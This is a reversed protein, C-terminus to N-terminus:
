ILRGLRRNIADLVAKVTAQTTDGAEVLATGVFSDRSEPMTVHAMAVQVPGLQQTAIGSLNLRLRGDTVAEVARLTAEGILRPRSNLAPSGTATGTYKERAWALTITVSAEDGDAGEAIQVIAPRANM